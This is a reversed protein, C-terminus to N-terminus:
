KAAGQEVTERVEATAKLAAKKPRSGFLAPLADLVFLLPAAFPVLANYINLSPLMPSIILCAFFLIACRKGVLWGLKWLPTYDTQIAPLMPPPLVATPSEAAGKGSWWDTVAEALKMGAKKSIRRGPIQLSFAGGTWRIMVRRSHTWTFRSKQLEVSVISSRQVSFQAREGRYTMVDDDFHLFGLDWEGFGEFRRIEEGPLLGVFQGEVDGIAARIKDGLRNLFRRRGLLELRLMMWFVVPLGALFALVGKGPGGDMPFLINVWAALGFLTVVLFGEAIWLAKMHHAVKTTTNFLPDRQELDPPLAYSRSVAAGQVARGLQQLDYSEGGLDPNELLALAREEAIGSRQAIALVRARMSPHSLISGQIGGWELPSGTLRALRALATIKAEPDGTIEAARADASFEHKQSIKAIGVSAVIPAIPLTLLWKPAGYHSILYGFVPGAILFYLWFVITQVSVHGGKLHGMEHAMVADVERKTLNELLGETIAIKQGSMAFANAERGVRNRLIYVGQVKVGAKAALQMLREYFDGSDVARVEVFSWRWAFWSIIKYAVYAAAMSGTTMMWSYESMGSGVLFIGLPVILKASGALTRKLLRALDSWPHRGPLLQPALAILVTALSLLPPASYLLAGFVLGILPHLHLSGFYASIDSPNVAGIWYFLSGTLIWSLWVMAARSRRELWCALLGPVFLVVALPVLIGSMDVKHGALIELAPPMQEPSKSEFEFSSGGGPQITGNSVTVTLSVTQVGAQHLAKMLPALRLWDHTLGRDNELLRCNSALYDFQQPYTSDFACGTAKSLVPRFDPTNEFGEFMVSFRVDGRSNPNVYINAATPEQGAALMAFIFFIWIDRSDAYIGL